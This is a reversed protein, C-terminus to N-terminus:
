HFTINESNVTSNRQKSTVKQRGAIQKFYTSLNKNVDKCLDSSNAKLVNYYRSKVRNQGEICENRLEELRKQFDRLDTYFTPGYSQIKRWLTRNFHKYLYVDANNWQLLKMKLNEPIETPESHRVNMKFYLIDNMNWCFQKKMLILSEDLYETILVLDFDAEIRAIFDSIFIPNDMERLPLGLDFSQPNRDTIYYNINRNAIAYKLPQNLFETIYAFQGKASINAKKMFRRDFRFFSFHSIFQQVPERIITIYIPQEYILFDLISRNRYIVHGASINFKYNEYDGQRVGIPPYMGPLSKLTIPVQRFHGLPQKATFLFSLNRHYGFRYLITALTTSGTKHTKIYVINKVPHCFSETSIVARPSPQRSRNSPLPMLQRFTSNNEVYLSFFLFGSVLSALVSLMVQKKNLFKLIKSKFAMQQM